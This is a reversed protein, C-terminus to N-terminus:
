LGTRSGGRAASRQRMGIKAVSPTVTSWTRYPTVPGISIDAYRSSTPLSCVQIAFAERAAAGFACLNQVSLECPRTLSPSRVYGSEPSIEIEPRTLGVRGFGANGHMPATSPSPPSDVQGAPRDARMTRGARGGLRRDPKAFAARRANRAGLSQAETAVVGPELDRSHRRATIADGKLGEATGRRDRLVARASYTM